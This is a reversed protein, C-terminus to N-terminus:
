TDDMDVPLGNAEASLINVCFADWPSLVSYCDWLTPKKNLAYDMAGHTNGEIRKSTWPQGRAPGLNIFGYYRDWKDITNRVFCWSAYSATRLVYDVKGTFIQSKHIIAVVDRHRRNSRPTTSRVASSASSWVPLKMLQSRLVLWFIMRIYLASTGRKGPYLPSINSPITEAYYFIKKAGIQVGRAPVYPTRFLCTAMKMWTFRSTPWTAPVGITFVKRTICRTVLCPYM